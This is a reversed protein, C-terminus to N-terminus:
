SHKLRSQMECRCNQEKRFLYYSRPFKTGTKISSMCIEVTDKTISIETVCGDSWDHCILEKDKTIFTTDVVSGCNLYINNQVNDIEANGLLTNPSIHTHGSLFIIKGYKDVITQLTKDKGLYPNGINRHPNHALLPAHCLILHWDADKQLLLNKELWLLQKSEPFSFKRGSIVCQLGIVDINGVQVSYALSDKDHVIELGKMTARNLMHSQFEAYNECGDNDKQVSSHLVDHNGIVPFFVKEHSTEDICTELLRFQDTLGDNTADGLLIVINSQTRELAQKIKWIKSSLHLDTLISFKQSHELTSSTNLFKAPIEFACDEHSSFDPTFCRVYIHTAEKPIRRLGSFHFHGNGAPDIPVYTLVSWGELRNHKDGWNLIALIFGKAKIIYHGDAYGQRILNVQLKIM